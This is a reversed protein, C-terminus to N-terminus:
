ALVGAITTGATLFLGDREHSTRMVLPYGTRSRVIHGERSGGRGSGGSDSRLPSQVVQVRFRPPRPCCPQFVSLDEPELASRTTTTGSHGRRSRTKPPDANDTHRQQADDVRARPPLRGWGTATGGGRNSADGPIAAM